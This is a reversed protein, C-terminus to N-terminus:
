KSQLRKNISKFIEKQITEDPITELLEFFAGEVLLSRAQEYSLGRSMMYFIKEEDPRGASLAHEGSVDDESCLLLPVSVNKVQPSLLFVSEEERGQASKSGTRFDLTYRLTKKARDKLIGKIKMLGKTRPALFNMKYNMDLVRDQDGLYLVNLTGQSDEGALDMRCGSVAKQAGSEVLLVECSANKDVRVAMNSIGDGSLDRDQIRVIKLSANEKVHVYINGAYLANSAKECSNDEREGPASLTYQLIVTGKSEEEATICTDEVLAHDKKGFVPAVLPVDPSAGASLRIKRDINKNEKIFEVLETDGQLEEYNTISGGRKEEPNYKVAFGDPTLINPAKSEKQMGENKTKGSLETDNVKLWKWTRVPIRNVRKFDYKM